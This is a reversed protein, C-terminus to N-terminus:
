RADAVMRSWASRFDPRDADIAADLGEGLATRAAALLRAQGRHIGRMTASITDDGMRTVHYTRAEAIAAFLVHVEDETLIPRTLLVDSV